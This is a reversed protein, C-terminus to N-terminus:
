KALADIKAQIADVQDFLDGLEERGAEWALREGGELALEVFATPHVLRGTRSDAIVVHTSVSADTVRPVLSTQAPQVGGRRAHWAKGVARGVAHAAEPEAGGEVAAGEM